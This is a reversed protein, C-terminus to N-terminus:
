VERGMFAALRDAAPAGDAAQREPGFPAVGDPGRWADSIAM